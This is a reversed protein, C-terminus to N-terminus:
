RDLKFFELKHCVKAFLKALEDQDYPVETTKRGAFGVELDMGGLYAQGGGSFPDYPEVEVFEQPGLSIGAWTRQADTLGIEGKMCIESPRASVVYADNLLLYIDGGDRQPMYDRNSVAVLNGFAYNNGGPSKVPRLM